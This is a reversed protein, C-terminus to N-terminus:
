CGANPAVEQKYKVQYNRRPQHWVSTGRDRGCSSNRSAVQAPDVMLIVIKTKLAGASVDNARPM